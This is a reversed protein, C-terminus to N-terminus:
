ICAFTVVNPFFGGVQMQTFYSLAEECHGYQVYGAILANWSVINRVLLEDFVKQAKELAGCKAYMSLLASGVFVNKKHLGQRVIDNHIKSGEHLDKKKACAKLLAVYTVAVAIGDQSTQPSAILVEEERHEKYHMGMGKKSEKEEEVGFEGDEVSGRPQTGQRTLEEQVQYPNYLVPIWSPEKTFTHKLCPSKAGSQNNQWRSPNNFYNRWQLDLSDSPNELTSLGTKKKNPPSLSPNSISGHLCNNLCVM